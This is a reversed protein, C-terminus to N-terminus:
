FDIRAETISNSFLSLKSLPSSGEDVVAVGVHDRPHIQIVQRSM